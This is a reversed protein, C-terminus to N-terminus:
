SGNELVEQAMKVLEVLDYFRRPDLGTQQKVKDLHYTVTNRHMFIARAVNTVNMNHNAMAVVIHADRLEDYLESFRRNWHRLRWLFLCGVVIWEVAAITTLIDSM